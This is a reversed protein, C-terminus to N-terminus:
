SRPVPHSHSTLKVGQGRKIWQSLVGPVWQVPPQTPGLPKRSVFALPFDEKGRGPISGRIERDHLGYGSVINLLSGRSTLLKYVFILKNLMSGVYFGLSYRKSLELNGENGGYHPFMNCYMFMLFLGLAEASYLM